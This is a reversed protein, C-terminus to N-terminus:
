QPLHQDVYRGIYATQNSIKSEYAPDSAYRLGIENTFNAQLEEPTKTSLYDEAMLDYYATVGVEPTNLRHVFDATGSDYEGVNYPNTDPSRGATGLLSEFQGQALAMDIPVVKSWDRGYKLYTRMAAREYMEATLPGNEWASGPRTLYTEARQRYAAFQNLEEPTFLSRDIEQEYEGIFGSATWRSNPDPARGTVEPPAEEQVPPAEEEVPPAEDVIPDEVIPPAEVPGEEDGAECPPDNRHRFSDVLGLIGGVAAGNVAGIPGGIAGGIAALRGANGLMNEWLSPREECTQDGSEQKRDRHILKALGSM